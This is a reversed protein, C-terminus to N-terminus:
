PTGMLYCGDAEKQLLLLGLVEKSVDTELLFSKKYDAFALVPNTICAERLM